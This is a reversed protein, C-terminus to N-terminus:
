WGKSIKEISCRQVLVSGILVSGTRKPEDGKQVGTRVRRPNMERRARLAPDGPHPLGGSSTGSRATTSQHLIDSRELHSQQLLLTASKRPHPVVQIAHARM